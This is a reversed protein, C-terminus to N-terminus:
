LSMLVSRYISLYKSNKKDFICQLQSKLTKHCFISIWTRSPQFSPVKYGITNSFSNSSEHNHSIVHISRQTCDSMRKSQLQFNTTIPPKHQWKKNFHHTTGGDIKLNILTPASVVLKTIVTTSNQYITNNNSGAMSWKTRKSRFKFCNTCEVM